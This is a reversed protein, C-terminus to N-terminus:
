AATLLPPVPCSISDAIARLLEAEEIAIVGDAAICVTAAAILQRKQKPSLQDLEPLIQDVADLTARSTSRISGISSSVAGGLHAVGAQFARTAETADDSGAYALVSLLTGIKASFPTLSYYRTPTPPIHRFERDLHRVLMHELAYEFLDVRDDAHVLMHINARFREYQGSALQRLAPMALDALPLYAARGITTLAQQFHQTAAHMGEEASSDLQQLQKHRVEDDTDLLLAYVLARANYPERAADRLVPPLSQVLERAYSLRNPDITGISATVQEPTVKASKPLPPPM